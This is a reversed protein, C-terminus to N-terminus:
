TSLPCFIPLTTIPTPCQPHRVAGAACRATAGQEAVPRRGARGARGSPTLSIKPEHQDPTVGNSRHTRLRVAVKCFRLLLRHGLVHQDHTRRILRERVEHLGVERLNELIADRPSSAFECRSGATRPPRSPRRSSARVASRRAALEASAGGFARHELALDVLEAPRLARAAVPRHHGGNFTGM